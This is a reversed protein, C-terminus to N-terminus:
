GGAVATLIEIEDGDAVRTDLASREIEDGNVFVTVFSHVAGMPDQLLEGLGPYGQALNKLCDGVTSGDAAVAARGQTTGRYPPPIKVQPM